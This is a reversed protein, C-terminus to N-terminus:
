FNKNEYIPLVEWFNYLSTKSGEKLQSLIRPYGKSEPYAVGWNISGLTSGTRTYNILSVEQGSLNKTRLLVGTIM